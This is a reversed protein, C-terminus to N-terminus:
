SFHLHKYNGFTGDSIENYAATPTALCRFVSPRRFRLIVHTSFRCSSASLRVRIVAFRVRGRLIHAPPPRPCKLPSGPGRPVSQRSPLTWPRFAHSMPADSSFLLLLSSSRTESSVTAPVDNNLAEQKIINTFPSATLKISSSSGCGDKIQDSIDSMRSLGSRSSPPVSSSSNWQPDVVLGGAASSPDDRQRSVVSSPHRRHHHRLRHHGNRHDDDDCAIVHRWWLSPPLSPEASPCRRAGVGNPVVKLDSSSSSFRYCSANKPFPRRCVRQRFDTPRLRNALTRADHSPRARTFPACPITVSVVHFLHSFGTPLIFFRFYFFVRFFIVFPYYFPFSLQHGNRPRARVSGSHLILSTTSPRAALPTVRRRRRRRLFRVRTHM